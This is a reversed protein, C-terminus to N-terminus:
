PLEEGGNVKSVSSIISLIGWGRGASVVMNSMIDSGEEVARYYNSGLPPPPLGAGFALGFTMTIILIMLNPNGHHTVHIYIREALSGKKNRKQM